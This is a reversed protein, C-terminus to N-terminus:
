SVDFVTLTTGAGLRPMVDARFMALHRVCPECGTTGYYTVWGRGPSPAAVHTIRAESAADRVGVNAPIPPDPQGAKAWRIADLATGAYRLRGSADFIKVQPTVFAGCKSKSSSFATWVILGKQCSAMVDVHVPQVAPEAHAAPLGLALCLSMAGAAGTVQDM